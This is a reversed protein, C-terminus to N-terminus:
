AKVPEPAPAAPPQEIMTFKAYNTKRILSSKSSVIALEMCVKCLAMAAIKGNPRPNNEVMVCVPPKNPCRGRWNPRKLDVQSPAQCQTLDLPLLGAREAYLSYFHRGKRKRLEAHEDPANPDMPYSQSQGHDNTYLVNAM